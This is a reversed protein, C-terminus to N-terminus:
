VELKILLEGTAPNEHIEQIQGMQQAKLKIAERLVQNIVADIHPQLQQLIHELQDATEKQLQQQAQEFQQDLRKQLDTKNEQLQTAAEVHTNHYVEVIQEATKTLVQEKQLSVTVTGQQPDIVAVGDDLKIVLTGNAQEVFGRERCAQRVLEAMQDVPLIELLDLTTTIQDAAHIVRTASEKLTIRYAWSVTTEEGVITLAM